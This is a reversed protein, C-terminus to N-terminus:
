ALPSCFSAPFSMPAELPIDFLYSVCHQIKSNAGDKTQKTNLMIEERPSVALHHMSIITDHSIVHAQCTLQSWFM